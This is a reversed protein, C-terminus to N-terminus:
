DDALIIEALKASQEIRDAVSVGGRYSGAFHCRPSRSEFRELAEMIVHHGAVYQPIARPWHKLRAIAPDGSIRMLDGLEERVVKLIEGDALRTLEPQRLGGVFTTLLVYGDPARGPFLSTSWLTGLIRRQELSPVLFGFGDLPHGVAERRYGLHVVSVPAYPVGLLMQAVDTNKEAILSATERAPGALVIRRARIERKVGQVSASMTYGESTPSVGQVESATSFATGLREALAEPLVQMGDTFSILKEKPMPAATGNKQARKKGIMGRFLGGYDQELQYLKPFAARVNLMEPDSAYVGAVFPNIINDLFAPGLRRRVFGGVTEEFGPKGKPVFIEGAVRLKERASLIPSTLFAGPSAPLAVLRGGKVVYRRAAEESAYCLRDELGLSSVLNLLHESKLMTSNPGTDFLFGDERYSRMVGGAEPNKELVIVEKGGQRLLYGLTLGSIGGGVICVDTDINESV